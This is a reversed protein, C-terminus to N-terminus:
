WIAAIIIVITIAAVTYKIKTFREVVKEENKNLM